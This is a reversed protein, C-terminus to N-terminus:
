PLTPGDPSPIGWIDGGGKYQWLVLANGALNVYLLTSGQPSLPSCYCGKQDPSWYFALWPLNSWGKVPICFQNRCEAARLFRM